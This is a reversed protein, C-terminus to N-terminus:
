KLDLRGRLDDLSCITVGCRERVYEVRDANLHKTEHTLYLGGGAHQAVALYPVDSPDFGASSLSRGCAGVAIGSYYVFRGRSAQTAFFRRGLSRPQLNREYEALIHGNADLLLPIGSRELHELTKIAVLLGDYGLDDMCCLWGCDIAVGVVTM